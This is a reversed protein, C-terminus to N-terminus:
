LSPYKDTILRHMRGNVWRNRLIGFSRSQYIITTRLFISVDFFRSLVTLEETFTALEKLPKPIFPVPSEKSESNGEFSGFGPGSGPLKKLFDFFQGFVSFFGGARRHRFGSGVGYKRGSGLWALQV